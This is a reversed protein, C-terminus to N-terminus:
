TPVQSENIERPDLEMADVRTAASQIAVAQIAVAQIAVAQISLHRALLARDGLNLTWLLEIIERSAGFLCIRGDPLFSIETMATEDDTLKNDTLDDGTVNQEFETSFM